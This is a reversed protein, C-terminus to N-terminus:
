EAAPAERVAEEDKSKDPIVYIFFLSSLLLAYPYLLFPLIEFASVVGGMTAVASIAVLMQAGYPLIGQFVCSFTDLLSAARKKSIGYIDRMEAAIPNSMVIAVTNN